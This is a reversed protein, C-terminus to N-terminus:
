RWKDFFDNMRILNPDRKLKFQSTNEPRFLNALSSNLYPVTLGKDNMLELNRENLNEIAKNNINSSETITKALNDSTDKIANTKQKFINKADEHYNQEGLKDQLRVAKVQNQLLVAENLNQLDEVNRISFMM